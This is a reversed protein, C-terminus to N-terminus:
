AQDSSEAKHGKRDILLQGNVGVNEPANEKILVTVHPIGYVKVAAESLGKVLQRKAELEKIPPGDVVITPM